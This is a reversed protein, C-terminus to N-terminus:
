ELSVAFPPSPGSAASAASAPESVAESLSPPSLPCFSPPPSPRVPSPPTASAFASVRRQHSRCAGAGLTQSSKSSGVPIAGPHASSTEPEPELRARVSAPAREAGEASSVRVLPDFPSHANKRLVYSTGNALSRM